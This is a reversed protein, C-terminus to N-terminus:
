SAARASVTAVLELAIGAIGVLWALTRVGKVGALYLVFYALRAAVFVQAGRVVHWSTAGASKAALYAGVFLVLNELMNKAARDAREAIPRAAPLDDRNGLMLAVNGNTRLMAATMIMLWALAVAYALMAADSTM